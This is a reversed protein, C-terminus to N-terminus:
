NIKIVNQEKTERSPRKRGSQVQIILQHIHHEENILCELVNWINARTGKLKHSIRNNM